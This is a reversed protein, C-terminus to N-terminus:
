VSLFLPPARSRYVPQAVSAPFVLVVAPLDSASAAVSVPLPAAPVGAQLPAHTLCWECAHNAVHQELSAGHQALLWQALLLAAALSLALLPHSLLRHRLM